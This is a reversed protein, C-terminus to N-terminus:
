NILDAPISNVILDGHTVNAYLGGAFVIEAGFGAVGVGVPDPSIAYYFTRQMTGNGAGYQKDGSSNTTNNSLLNLPTAGSGPAPTPDVNISVASQFYSLTVAINGSFSSSIYLTNNTGNFSSFPTTSGFSDSSPSYTSATGLPSVPTFTGTLLYHDARSATDTILRCKCLWIDYSCWLEGLTTLNTPCGVTAINFVGMQSWRLDQVGSQVGPCDTYFIGNSPTQSPDCEVPHIVSASPVTSSAFTYAEMAQKNAFANANSNYQTAMVVTGLAQNVTTNGSTTKFEFILGEMRWEEFNCAIQSLFPFTVPDAPDINFRLAEFATPTGANSSVIDCIFERHQMRICGDEKTAFLPVQDPFMVTNHKVNYAGHGAIKAILSGAATGVVGGIGPAIYNGLMGGAFPAAKAAYRMVQSWPSTSPRRRRTYPARSSTTYAGRGAVRPVYSRAAYRAQYRRAYPVRRQTGSQFRRPM